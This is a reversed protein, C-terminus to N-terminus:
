GPFSIRHTAQCCPASWSTASLKNGTLRNQASASARASAPARCAEAGSRLERSRYFHTRGRQSSEAGRALEAFDSAHIHKEMINRASYGQQSDDAAKKDRDQAAHQTQRVQWRAPLRLQWAHNWRIRLAHGRLRQAIIPLGRQQHIVQGLESTWRKLKDERNDVELETQLKIARTFRGTPEFGAM